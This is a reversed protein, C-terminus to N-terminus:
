RSIGGVPKRKRWITCLVGPAYSKSEEQGGCLYDVYVRGESSTVRILPYAYEDLELYDDSNIQSATVQIRRCHRPMAPSMFGERPIFPAGPYGM